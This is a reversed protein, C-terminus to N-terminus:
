PSSAAPPRRSGPPSCPSGGPSPVTSLDGEHDRTLIALLAPDAYVEASHRWQTLLLATPALDDLAVAGSATAVLESILTDIGAEPLFTTWPLAQHLADINGTRVLGTLLRATFDVVTADREMQDVRMLALDEADRRRLRLARVSDLRRTTVAPRHPLESFPLDEYAAAM